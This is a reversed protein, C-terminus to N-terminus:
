FWAQVTDHGAALAVFDAYDVMEVGDLVRAAGIGRAALDPELAFVRLRACAATIEPEAGGGRAAAYVGNEILLLAAGDLAHALCSALADSEHPSKNMTHLVSM